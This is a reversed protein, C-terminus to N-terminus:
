FLPIMSRVLAASLEAATSENFTYSNEQMDDAMDSMCRIIVFPISNLYCAHAIAAGEMEVCAPNCTERIHKKIEKDSIFQDGTAIRGAILEHGKAEKLSAFAVTAADLMKPDAPFDSCKMQPVESVKYGFGTADMDHYLADTSAVFDLVKLGSAMAGAIGTNIVHSVGFQIALRQACLAANVKGVGSKVVVVAIGDLLGEYFECGGAVTTRVSSEGPLPLLVSKLTKVEVDMAGIIGVKKQM